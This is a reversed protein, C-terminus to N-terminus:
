KRRRLILAFGGLGLLATTTPEPVPTVTGELKLNDLAFGHSTTGANAMIYVRFVTTSTIPDLGSLAITHNEGLQDGDGANPDYVIVGTLADTVHDQTSFDGAKDWFLGVYKDGGGGTIDMDMAFSTLDIQQGAGPNVTFTLYYNNTFSGDLNASRNGNIDGYKGVMAFGSVPAGFVFSDAANERSSHQTSVTIGGIPTTIDGSLSGPDSSTVTDGDFNYQAVVAANSSTAALGLTGMATALSM